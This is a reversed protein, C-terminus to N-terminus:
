DERYYFAARNYLSVWYYHVEMYFDGLDIDTTSYALRWYKSMMESAVALRVSVNNKNM